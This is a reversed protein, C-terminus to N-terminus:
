NPVCAGYETGGFVFGPADGIRVCVTGAFAGCEGGVPGARRCMPLCVDSAGGINFCGFNPQCDERATCTALYGATGASGCDTLRRGSDTEEFIDCRTGAPCGVSSAPNCDTTCTTATSGTIGGLCVSGLGGTCDPDVDCHRRCITDDTDIQICVLGPACIDDDCSEGESRTGAAACVRDDGEALYCGFGTSCGCQPSVLQCPREACTPDVCGDDVDCVFSGVCMTDVPNFVCAGTASDCRDVTCAIGDNCEVRTGPLCDGAVCREIGDCPDGNDCDAPGGCGLDPMRMDPMAMDEMRMDPMAMDEMRMDPMAMDEMRMDPMAMDVGEDPTATDVAADPTALDVGLDAPGTGMEALSDDLEGGDLGVEASDAGDGDPVSGDVNSAGGGQACAGLSLLVLYPIRRM